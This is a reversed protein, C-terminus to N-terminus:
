DELKSLDIITLQGFKSGVAYYKGHFRFTARNWNYEEGRKSGAIWALKKGSTKSIIWGNEEKFQVQPEWSTTKTDLLTGTSVDCIYHKENTIYQLMKSDSSFTFSKSYEFTDLYMPITHELDGESTCWLHINSGTLSAIWQGDPSCRVIYITNGDGLPKKSLKKTSINWISIFADGATVCAVTQNDPLIALSWVYSKTELQIHHLQKGTQTEWISVLGDVSGTAITTGDSSFEICTIESLPEEAKRMGSSHGVIDWICVTKDDSASALTQGNHSFCLSRVLGTHGRLINMLKGSDADWLCITLDLGGSAIIDGKPAIAIAYVNGTHERLVRQCKQTKVDWICITKDEAGSVVRRGDPSFIVIRVEATHGKLTCVLDGTDANWIYINRGATVILKGDPSFSIFNTKSINDAQLLQERTVADWIKFSRDRSGAVIKKGDPSYAVCHYEKDTPISHLPAGSAFDWICLTKDQSVSVVEAPRHPDPCFDVAYVWHKHGRMINLLTGSDAQWTCLTEDYSGTVIFHGDPSYKVSTVGDTHGEMVSLCPGWGSDRKTILQLAPMHQYHSAYLEQLLCSPMMPLASIYIQMPDMEITVIYELIFRYGDNLLSPIQTDVDLGTINQVWQQVSSLAPAASRLRGMVSLAGFWLLLDRKLFEQLLILLANSAQSSVMHAPWHLCAYAIHASVPVQQKMQLVGPKILLALCKSAFAQHHTLPNIFFQPDTCRANDILFQPFSAHVPQIEINTDDCPLIVSAMQSVIDMVDDVPIGTLSKLTQPSVQDQLLAVSALVDQIMNSYDSEPFSQQLVTLYLMDLPKTMSSVTSTESLWQNLRLVAHKPYKHRLSKFIFDCAVSAYIFLGAAKGTLEAVINPREAKLEAKFRSKSLEAEVYRAIDMNVVDLPIDQLKFPQAINHFETSYLPTEIHIEPRTTLLIRLPLSRQHINKMLLYLLHAVDDQGSQTCEDVADIIIVLPNHNSPLARLPEVLLADLQHELQMTENSHVYARVADVIHRYLEPINKALQFAITPIVFHITSLKEIGRIFFFSAGLLKAKNLRKAIECAITSKGTGALGSLIYVPINAFETDAKAWHELEALLDVRTGALYHTKSQTYVSQYSADATPLARLTGEDGQRTVNLDIRNVVQATEVVIRQTTAVIGEITATIREVTFVSGMIFDMRATKIRDTLSKLSQEDQTSKLFRKLLNPKSLTDVEEEVENLTKILADAREKYESSTGLQTRVEESNPPQSQDMADGFKKSSDIITESLLKIEKSLETWAKRNGRTKLTMDILTSIANAAVKLGPIPALDLADKGIDLITHAAGLIYDIREKGDRSSNRSSNRSSDRSM